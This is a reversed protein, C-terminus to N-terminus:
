TWIEVLSRSALESLFDLIAPGGPPEPATEAVIEGVTRAGDCLSWITHGSPTVLHMEETRVQFLLFGAADPRVIVDPSVIPIDDDSLM